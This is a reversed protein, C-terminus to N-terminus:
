GRRNASGRGSHVLVTKLWALNRTFEERSRRLPEFSRTMANWFAVAILVAIVFTFGATILKATGASIRFVLPLLEAIGLLAVPVSAIALIVAVLIAVLPWAARETSEKLDLATLRAQLEALTTVNSAFDAIGGVFGNVPHGNTAPSEVRGAASRGSM